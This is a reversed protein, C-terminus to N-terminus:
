RLSAHSNLMCKGAKEYKKNELFKVFDLTCETENVVHLARRYVDIKLASRRELICLNLSFRSIDVSLWSILLNNRIKVKWSRGPLMELFNSVLNKQLKRVNRVVCHINVEQSNM